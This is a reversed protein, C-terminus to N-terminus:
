KRGNKDILDLELRKGSKQLVVSNERISLIKAGSIYENEFKIRDNIVAMKGSEDHIIMSLKFDGKKLSEINNNNPIGSRMYDPLTPDGSMSRAVGSVLLFGLLVFIASLNRAV